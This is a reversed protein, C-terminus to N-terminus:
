LAREKLFRGVAEPLIRYTPRKSTPRGVHICEPRGDPATGFWGDAILQRVSASSMATRRAFESPTIGNYAYRYKEKLDMKADVESLFTMTMM